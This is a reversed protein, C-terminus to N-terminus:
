GRALQTAARDTITTLVRRTTAEDAAPIDAFLPGTIQDIAARTSAHRERGADTLAVVPGSPTQLLGEDALEAIVADAATDDVQLAAALRAVLEPRAIGDDGAAAFTLAVWQPFTGGTRTLVRTMLASLTRETQGIFQTLPPSTSM